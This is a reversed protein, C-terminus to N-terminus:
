NRWSATTSRLSATATKVPHGRPHRAARGACRSITRAPGSITRQIKPTSRLEIVTASPGSFTPFNPDWGLALRLQAAVLDIGYAEEHRTNVQIRANVELFV